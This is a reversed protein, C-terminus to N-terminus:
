TSRNSAAREVIVDAAREILNYLDTKACYEPGHRQWKALRERDLMEALMLNLKEQEFPLPCIRGAGANEVHFAFGCNATALVPLGCVMAEILTTGTNETHAPHILLDAAYYFAAVDERAGTFTVREDVGLRRALRLFPRAVDDGVVVLRSRARLEPPLSALTILARDIGKTRFRSGVNLLMYDESRVDLASRLRTRDAPEPVNRTLRQKDIGPPLLHFRTADTGYYHMFKDREQHAILLVETNKGATFVEQELARLARYRPLMKYFWSRQQEDVRAAYCTDAAYYVDLGPMKNFGVVVDFHQQHLLKRVAKVFRTYRLHNSLGRVAVVTVKLGDPVPGLWKITFVEVSHGRRQCAQAIRLFDRQLGGYPFYNFLCFAFRM